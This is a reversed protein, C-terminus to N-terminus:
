ARPHRAVPIVPMVSAEGLIAVLWWMGATDPV